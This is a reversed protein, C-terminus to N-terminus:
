RVLHRFLKRPNAICGYALNYQRLIPIIKVMRQLHFRDPDPHDKSLWCYSFIWLFQRGRKKWLTIAEEPSWLWREPILQRMSYPEGRESCDEMYEGRVLAICDRTILDVIEVTALTPPVICDEENVPACILSAGATMIQEDVIRFQPAILAIARFTPTFADHVLHLNNGKRVMTGMAGTSSLFKGGEMAERSSLGAHPRPGQTPGPHLPGCRLPGGSGGPAQPRGRPSPPDVAAKPGPTTRPAQALSM